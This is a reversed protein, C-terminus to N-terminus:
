WQSANPYLPLGKMLRMDEIPASLVVSSVNDLHSLLEDRLEISNRYIHTQIAKSAEGQLLDIVSERWLSGAAWLVEGSSPEILMIEGRISITLANPTQPPLVIGKLHSNQPQPQKTTHRTIGAETLQFHANNLSPDAGMQASERIKRELETAQVGSDAHHTALQQAAESLSTPKPISNEGEKSVMNAKKIEEIQEKTLNLTTGQFEKVTIYVRSYFVAPLANAQEVTLPYAPYYEAIQLGKEGLLSPFDRNFVDASMRIYSEVVPAYQNYVNQTVGYDINILTPIYGVYHTYNKKLPSDIRSYGVAEAIPLDQPANLQIQQQTSPPIPASSSMPSTPSDPTFTHCGTIFVLIIVHNALFKM